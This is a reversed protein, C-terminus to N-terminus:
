ILEPFDPEIDESMNEIYDKANLMLAKNIRNVLETVEKEPLEEIMLIYNQLESVNDCEENDLLYNIHEKVKKKKAKLSLKEWEKNTRKFAKLMDEKNVIERV